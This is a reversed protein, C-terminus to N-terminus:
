ELLVSPMSLLSRVRNMLRERTREIRALSLFSRNAPNPAPFSLSNRVMLDDGLADDIQKVGFTELFSDMPSAAVVAEM